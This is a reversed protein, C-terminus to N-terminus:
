LRTKTEYRIALWSDALRSCGSYCGKSTLQQPEAAHQNTIKTKVLRRM